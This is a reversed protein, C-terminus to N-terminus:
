PPVAGAPAAAIVILSSITAIETSNLGLKDCFFGLIHRIDEYYTRLDLLSCTAPQGHHAVTIRQNKISEWSDARGSADLDTRFATKYADSFRRLTDKLAGIGIRGAKEDRVSLAFARVESDACRMCRAEIASRLCQEMHSHLLVVGYCVLASEFEAPDIAPPLDNKAAVAKEAFELFNEFIALSM